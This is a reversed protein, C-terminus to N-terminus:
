IRATTKQMFFFESPNDLSVMGGESMTFYGMEMTGGFRNKTVSLTRLEETNEGEIVLVADVLHELARLGAIEDNKTMQGVMIIARPNKSDKAIKLLENACEMTQTPSGARSSSYEALTFTQISDVIVLEADVIRVAELLNDMSNDSVVWINEDINGFLRDARNKIQSDSEEGSAYLVKIGMKAIDNAVQLLLTSKGAGPRATIITISDKVIGGGMVRNFENISTIIRDRRNTSVQNLKVPENVQRSVSGKNNATKKTAVTEEEFTNWANCDPCKGMWKSTKYGCENCIFIEKEKAM